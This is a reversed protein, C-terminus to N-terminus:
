QMVLLDSSENAAHQATAAHAGTATSGYAIEQGGGRLEAAFRGYAASATLHHFLCVSPCRMTVYVRCRLDHPTGIIVNVPGIVSEVFSSRQIPKRMETISKLSLCDIGDPTKIGDVLKPESM